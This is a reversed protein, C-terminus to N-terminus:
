AMATLVLYKFILILKYTFTKIGNNYSVLIQLDIGKISM